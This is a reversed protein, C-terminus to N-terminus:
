RQIPSHAEGSETRFAIIQDLRPFSPFTEPDCGEEFWNMLSEVEIVADKRYLANMARGLSRNEVLTEGEKLACTALYQLAEVEQNLRCLSEIVIGFSPSSALAHTHEQALHNLVGHMREVEEMFSLNVIMTTLEESGALEAGRAHAFTEFNAIAPESDEELRSQHIIGLLEAPTEPTQIQSM